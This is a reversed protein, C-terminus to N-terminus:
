NVEEQQKSHADRLIRNTQSELEAIKASLDQWNEEAIKIDWQESKTVMALDKELQMLFYIMLKITIPIFRNCSESEARSNRDARGEVAM